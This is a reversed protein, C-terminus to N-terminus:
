SPLELTTTLVGEDLSHSLNGGIVRLYADVLALGLGFHQSHTRSADRQWLPERMSTLDEDHLHPARNRVSIRGAPQDILIPSGAPSHALANGILNDLVTRFLAPDSEIELSPTRDLWEIRERSPAPLNDLSETILQAPLIRTMKSPLNQTEGRHIATLIEIIVSLRETVSVGTRFVELPDEAQIAGSNQQHCSQEAVELLTRLEAVPTRMEHAIDISFRRERKMAGDLRGIFENFKEILPRLEAPVDDSPLRSDLAHADLGATMEAIEIMPHCAKAVIRAVLFYIAVGLLLGTCALTIGLILLTRSLDATSEAITLYVLDQEATPAYTLTTAAEPLINPQGKELTLPFSILFARGELGDPLEFKEFQNRTSGELSFPLQDDPGLSRSRLIIEGHRDRLEYFSGKARTSPRFDDFDFNHFESEVSGDSLRHTEAIFDEATRTLQRDLQQHLSHQMFFFIGLASLGFLILLGTTLATVLNRRISM